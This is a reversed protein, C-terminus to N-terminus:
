KKIKKNSFLILIAGSGVLFTPSWYTISIRFAIQGFSSTITLLFPLIQLLGGLILLLGMRRYASIDSDSFKLNEKLNKIFAILLLIIPMISLFFIFAFTSTGYNHGGLTTWTLLFLLGFIVSLISLLWQTLTVKKKM